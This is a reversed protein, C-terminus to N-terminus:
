KVNVIRNRGKGDVVPASARNSGCGKPPPRGVYYREAINLSNLREYSLFPSTIPTAGGGRHAKDKVQDRIIQNNTFRIRDSPCEPVSCNKTGRLDANCFWEQLLPQGEFRFMNRDVINQDAGNRFKLVTGDMAGFVNKEIRNYRAGYLYVAHILSSDTANGIGEFRNNMIVNNYTFWLTIAGWGTAEGSQKATQAGIAKFAVNSITMSPGDNTLSAIPRKEAGDNIIGIGNLYNRIEINRIVGPFSSSKTLLTLFRPAQGGDFIVSGASARDIITRAACNASRKRTDLTLNVGVYIGPQFKLISDRCAILASSVDRSLSLNQARTQLDKPSLTRSFSQARAGVSFIVATLMFATMVIPRPMWM